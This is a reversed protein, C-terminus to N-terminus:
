IHLMLANRGNIQRTKDSGRYGAGPSDCREAAEETAKFCRPASNEFHIIVHRAYEEEVGEWEGKMGEDRAFVRRKTGNWYAVRKKNGPPVQAMADRWFTRSYM